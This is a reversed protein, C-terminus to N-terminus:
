ATEKKLHLIAPAFPAASGSGEPAVTFYRSVVLRGDAM